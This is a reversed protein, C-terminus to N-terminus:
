RFWAVFRAWWGHQVPFAQRVRVLVVSINDRGGNDNAMEVLRGACQDLTLSESALTMAVEEEAVMDPLGDSCLLFIDGIRVDYDHIEPEAVPDVGLARTVLNKNRSLRAEEVTLVGGDIQEQLLSHDRSIQRLEGDRFRYLRSDGLHAVTVHDDHFLAMVLTTGMGACQPQTLATEYIISNVRSIEQDLVDHGWVRGNAGRGGATREVFVQQLAEGLLTTAMGSAVEGANYGGMGDAVIAVGMQASTFISDENHPRVKGPDTLFAVELSRSLDAAM